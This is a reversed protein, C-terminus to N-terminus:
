VITVSWMMTRTERSEEEKDRKLDAFEKFEAMVEVQVGKPFIQTEWMEKWSEPSHCFM